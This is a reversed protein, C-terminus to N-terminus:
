GNIKQKLKYYFGQPDCKYLEDIMKEFGEIMKLQAKNIEKKIIIDIDIDKNCYPCSIGCVGGIGLVESLCDLDTKEGTEQQIQKKTIKDRKKSHELDLEKSLNKLTERDIKNFEKEM